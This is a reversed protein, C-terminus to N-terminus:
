RSFSLETQVPPYCFGIDACGQYHLRVTDEPSGLTLEVVGRHIPTPGFIPDAYVSAEPRSTQIEIGDTSEVRTREDYLYVGEAIRIEIVEPSLRSIQFAQEVPLVSPTEFASGFSGQSLSTQPLVMSALVVFIFAGRQVTERRNDYQVLM